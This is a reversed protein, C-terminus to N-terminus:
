VGQFQELTADQGSHSADTKLRTKKENIDFHSKETIIVIETKLKEFVLLHNNDWKEVSKKNLLPSRSSSLTSLKAVIKVYQNISGFSSRLESIIKPIPLKKIADAKGVM